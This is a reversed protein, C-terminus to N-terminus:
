TRVFVRRETTMLANFSFHVCLYGQTANYNDDLLSMTSGFMEQEFTSLSSVLSKSAARRGSFARERFSAAMAPVAYSALVVASVNALRVM